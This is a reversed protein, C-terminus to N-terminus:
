EFKTKDLRETGRGGDRTGEGDRTHAVKLDHWLIIYLRLLTRTGPMGLLSLAEQSSKRDSTNVRWPGFVETGASGTVSPFDDFLPGFLGRWSHRCRCPPSPPLAFPKQTSPPPMVPYHFGRSSHSKGRPQIAQQALGPRPKAPVHWTGGM